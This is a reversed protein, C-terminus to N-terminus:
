LEFRLTWDACMDGHANIVAVDIRQIGDESVDCDVVFWGVDDCRRRIFFGEYVLFASAFYVLISKTPRNGCVYVKDGVQPM